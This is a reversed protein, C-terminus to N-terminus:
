QCTVGPALQYNAIKYTAVFDDDWATLQLQGRSTEGDWALVRTRAPLQRVRARGALYETATAKPVFVAITEHVASGGRRPEQKLWELIVTFGDVEPDAVLAANAAMRTLLPGVYRSFMAAARDELNLRAFAPSPDQEIYVRMSLYREDHTMGKPRFFGISHKRVELWPLCHYVSENLARLAAAHKAALQRAKETTYEQAPLIRDESASIAAAADALALLLAAAGVLVLLQAGPRPARASVDSGPEAPPMV